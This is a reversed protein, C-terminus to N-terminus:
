CVCMPAHGMLQRQNLLQLMLLLVCVCVCPAPLCMHARNSGRYQHRVFPSTPMCSADLLSCAAAALPPPVVYVDAAAAVAVAAAARAVGTPKKGVKFTSWLLM